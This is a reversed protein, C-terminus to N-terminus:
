ELSKKLLWTLVHRKEYIDANNPIAYGSQVFPKLEKYLPDKDIERIEFASKAAPLLYRPIPNLGLAEADKSLLVESLAWDSNMFDVFASAADRCQNDRSCGNRKVFADVFLLPEARSGLPLSNVRLSATSRAKRELRETTLHLRESYGWFAAAKGEVFQAVPTDSNESYTGDLCPNDDDSLACLNSLTKVAAVTRNQLPPEVAKELQDYATGNDIRADLYLSPLDWSSDFNGVLPKGTALIESKLLEITKADDIGQSSSILFFGCLIHPIGWWVTRGDDGKITGGQVAARFYSENDQQDWPEITESGILDGLIITDIEVIDYTESALWGAIRAPNYYGEDGKRLRLVLDIDPNRKEFEAEIRKRLSAFGDNAADPIWPFLAVKLTARGSIEDASTATTWSVYFFTICIFFVFFGIRGRM